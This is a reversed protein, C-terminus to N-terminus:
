SESVEGGPLILAVMHSSCAWYDLHVETLDWGQETVWDVVTQLSRGSVDVSASSEDGLFTPATISNDQGTSMCRYGM